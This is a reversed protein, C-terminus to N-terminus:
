APSPDLEHGAALREAWAAMARRILRASRAFVAEDWGYPDGVDVPADDAIAENFLRVRRPEIDPWCELVHARHEGTACLLLHSERALVGDLETSRHRSLDCGLAAAARLSEGLAPAGNMACTGASRVLVDRVGLQELRAALFAAGMPSRCINGTCVVTVVRVSM